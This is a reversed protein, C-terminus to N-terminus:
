GGGMCHCIKIFLDPRSEQWKLVEKVGEEQFHVRWRKFKRLAPPNTDLNQSAGAKLQDIWDMKLKESLMNRTIAHSAVSYAIVFYLVMGLFLQIHVDEVLEVYMHESTPTALGEVKIHALIHFFEFQELLWVSFALFGLCM